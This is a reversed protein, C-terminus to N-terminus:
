HPRGAERSPGPVGFGPISGSSFKKRGYLGHPQAFAVHQSGQADSGDPLPHSSGRAQLDAPRVTRASPPPRPKLALAHLSPTRDRQYQMPMPPPEFTMPYGGPVAYQSPVFFQGNQQDFREDLTWLRQASALPLTHGDTIHFGDWYDMGGDDGGQWSEVRARKAQKIDKSPSLSGDHITPLPQVDHESDDDEVVRKKKGKGNSNGKKGKQKASYTALEKQFELTDKVRSLVQGTTTTVLPIEGYDVDDLTMALQALTITLLVYVIFVLFSTCTDWQVLGVQHAWGEIIPEALIKFDDGKLKDINFLPGPSPFIHLTWNELRFKYKYATSLFHKWSIQQTNKGTLADPYFWNAKVYHHFSTYYKSLQPTLHGSFVRRFYERNKEGAMRVWGHVPEADSDEQLVDMERDDVASRFCRDSNHVTPYWSVSRIKNTIMNIVNQVRIKNQDILTRAMDSGTFLGSLNQAARNSGTYVAIGLVQIDGDM